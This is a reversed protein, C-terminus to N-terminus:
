IQIYWSSDKSISNSPSTGKGFFHREAFLQLQRLNAASM